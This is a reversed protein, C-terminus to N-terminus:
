RVQQSIVTPSINKREKEEIADALNRAARSLQISFGAGFPGKLAFQEQRALKQTTPVQDVRCDRCRAMATCKNFICQGSDDFGMANRRRVDIEVMLEHSMWRM